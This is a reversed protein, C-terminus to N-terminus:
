FLAREAKEVGGRKKGGKKGKTGEPPAMRRDVDKGVRKNRYFSLPM